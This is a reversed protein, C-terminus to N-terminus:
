MTSAPAEPSPSVWVYDDSIGSSPFEEDSDVDTFLDELKVEQKIAPADKMLAEKIDDGEIGAEVMTMDHDHDQDQDQDEQSEEHVVSSPVEAEMEYTAEPSDSHPM